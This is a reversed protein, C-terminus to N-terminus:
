KVKYHSLKRGPFKSGEPEIVEIILKCNPTLFSNSYQTEIKRQSDHVFIDVGKQNKSLNYAEYISKMRCPYKDSWGAPADVIIIDWNTNKIEEPLNLSLCDKNGKNYEDLLRDADWGKDTYNIKCLNLHPSQQQIKNFWQENDELFVTKGKNTKCWLDSDGGVGFVLINSKEKSKICKYITKYQDFHMGNCINVVSQIKQVEQVSIDSTDQIEESNVSSLNRFIDYLHIALNNPHYAEKFKNRANQVITPQLEKYNTLIYDIKEEIDSYDHKCAIYTKGDEFVNPATELYSMDPKLLISGYMAAELDRPAMEGYGFPAFIIKSNFMKQNYENLSVRKGNELKAVKYNLQNIIDIGPKRHNDYHKSQIFGHEFSEDSPYGFMASVDYQKDPTIESWQPKIGAWHTGLWNTGSLKIRDSYKDFDPLKYDGQGWYYRGLNSGQKYLSRDKLLSNKLMLLANSEKFVEYTGMLSTSDQGDIIMYDGTIKSLFELGKETSEQLSLKKNIISAQGVWAYDYSDGKTFEIGIEKLVNQSYLYPRFTCENRHKDFEYLKIKIM